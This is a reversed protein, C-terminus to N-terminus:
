EWEQRMELMHKEIHAYKGPFLILHEFSDVLIVFLKPYAERPLHIQLKYALDILRETLCSYSIMSIM